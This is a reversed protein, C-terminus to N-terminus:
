QFRLAEVPDLAAARRAPAWGFVVGVAIAFGLAVGITSLSVETAWGTAMRVLSAAVLGLFVGLLGGATSLAVAEVLFQALVDGSRAGVARRLGIERTRETVSVLMINMIGIGGVLLSVSAIAALLWTMVQTAGQAAEALQSQDKITFDDPDRPGLKHAERMLVALEDKASAVERESWASAIIQGVFARGPMRARVTSYPAVIIDDQDTGEASPGKSSLVGIVEMPVGRIRLTEGIPDIGPYLNDSVTKGILCVKRKTRFEEVDFPRGSAVKWSRIEFWAPDVGQVATRWNGVGGVVSAPRLLIPTVASVTQAERGIVEADEISIGVSGAGGSIGGRNTAGPTIVVLNTGLSQIKAGIEKQAGQGIGVMVVVSGVGIIVGLMTLMSRVVNRRLSQLALGVLVFFSV